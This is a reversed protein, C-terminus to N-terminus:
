VILRSKFDVTKVLIDYLYCGVNRKLRSFLKNMMKQFWRPANTSGFPMVHFHFTGSQCILATQM